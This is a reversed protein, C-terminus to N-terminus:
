SRADLRWSGVRPLGGAVGMAQAALAHRGPPCLDLGILAGARPGALWAPGHGFGRALLDTFALTRRQDGRRDRAWDALRTAEGPDDASRLREALACVDRLALNFGQAGVPHLTHAANGVLVARGAISRDALTRRLPYLAPGRVVELPGLRRGIRRGAELAFEAPPLGALADARAAPVTWILTRLSGGAPLLAVPGDRTFREHATHPDGGARVQALLATQAYDHVQTGIGLADRLPSATGDAAVVLRTHLTEGGADAEVRVDLREHAPAVGAVRAPARWSVGPAAAASAALASALRDYAVVRGLAPVGEGAADLRTRGLHGQQSVEVRHIPVGDAALGPWTGLADLLRVSGHALATARADGQPRVPRAEIVVIRHRGDALALALASGAPGGGAILIDCDPPHM